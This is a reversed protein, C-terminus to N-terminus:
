PLESSRSAGASVELLAISLSLLFTVQPVTNQLESSFKANLLSVEDCSVNGVDTLSTDEYSNPM